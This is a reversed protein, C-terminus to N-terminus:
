IDGRRRVRSRSPRAARRHALGQPEPPLRHHVLAPRAPAVQPSSRTSSPILAPDTLPLPSSWPETARDGRRRRAPLRIGSRGLLLYGGAAAGTVANLLLFVLMGSGVVFLATILVPGLAVAVVLLPAPFLLGVFVLVTYGFFRM